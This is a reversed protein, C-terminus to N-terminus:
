RSEGSEAPSASETAPAADTAASEGGPAAAKKKYKDEWSAAIGLPDEFAEESFDFDQLEDLSPPGMAGSLAQMTVSEIIARNENTIRTRWACALLENAFEGVFNRLAAEGGENQKAALTIRFRGAEPRDVLVFCRDIFVYAAGYVADLPYVSEDVVLSVHDDDISAVEPPVGAFATM